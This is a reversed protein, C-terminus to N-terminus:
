PEVDPDVLGLQRYAALADWMSWAEVIQGGDLRYVDVGTMTVVRGTPPVRGYPGTHTGTTKWRLVVKDHEGILDDISTHVDTFAAFYREVDAGIASVANSESDGWHAEAHAAVLEEVVGIDREAWLRHHFTRVLEKNAACNEITSM